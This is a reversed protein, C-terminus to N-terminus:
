PLRPDRPQLKRRAAVAAALEQLMPVTQAFGICADTISVGPKLAVGPVLDQRGEELHSEIMVGTIRREGAAVQEAVDHAVAIQRRHQKSSNAHSVDIMVQAGIAGWAVLDAIFQPSLLDLFETGTPLGLSTLDLLLRRARELGENIAFSGDLHPDNIYGKWGVTTRPKEFYARMVILLESQLSDAVAKLRQAYDLAQDHDHISCPGVVVVLRDDRGHLVDAIAVRSREVLALTGDRLPVREQLLAPTILPRVAGIRVDDIRTTDLTS